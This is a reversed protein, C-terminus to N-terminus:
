PDKTYTNLFLLTRLVTTRTDPRAAYAYYTTQYLNMAVDHLVQDLPFRHTGTTPGRKHHM